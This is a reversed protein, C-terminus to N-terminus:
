HRPEVRWWQFLRRASRHAFPRATSGARERELPVTDLWRMEM